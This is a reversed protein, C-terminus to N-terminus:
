GGRSGEDPERLLRQYLDWDWSPGPDDHESCDPAEDHGLVHVRDLPLRHRRAIDRVLRASSRYMAETFWRAGDGTMGEHEVGISEDNFCADHFAVDREDVMQVILGDSARVVYHASTQAGPRQFWTVASVLTGNTVHLVVAKVRRGPAERRATARWFRAFSAGERPGEDDAPLAVECGPEEPGFAYSFGLGDGGRVGRRLGGVIEDALLAPALTNRTFRRRGLELALACPTAAPPVAALLRANADVRRGSVQGRTEAHLASALMAPSVGRRWAAWRVALALPPRALIV